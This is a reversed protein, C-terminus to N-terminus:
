RRNRPEPSTTTGTTITTRDRISIAPRTATPRSGNISIAPCPMATAGPAPNVGQRALLKAKEEAEAKSAPIYPRGAPHELPVEHVPVTEAVPKRPEGVYAKLSEEAQARSPTLGPNAIMGRALSIGAPTM